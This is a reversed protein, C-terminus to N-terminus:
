SPGNYKKKRKDKGICWFIMHMHICNFACDCFATVYWASLRIETDYYEIIQCIHVWSWSYVSLGLYRDEKCIRLTRNGSKKKEYERIYMRERGEGQYKYMAASRDNVYVFWCSVVIYIVNDGKFLVLVNAVKNCFITELLFLPQPLSISNPSLMDSIPQLCALSSAFRSPVKYMCMPPTFIYRTIFARGKQIVSDAVDRRKKM